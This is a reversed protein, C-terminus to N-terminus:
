MPSIELSKIQYNEDVVFNLILRDIEKSYPPTHIIVERRYVNKEKSWNYKPGGYSLIKFLFNYTSDFHVSYYQDPNNKGNKASFVWDDNHMIDIFALGRQVEVEGFSNKQSEYPHAALFNFFLKVKTTEAIREQEKLKQEEEKLKKELTKERVLRQAKQTYNSKPYFAKLKEFEEFIDSSLGWKIKLFLAQAITTENENSNIIEDLLKKADGNKGREFLSQAYRLQKHSISEYDTKIKGIVFVQYYGNEDYGLDEIKLDPLIFGESKSEILDEFLQYNRISSFSKIKIGAKELAKRKADILAENYDQERNTRIGDDIGRISFDITNQAHGSFHILLLLLFLKGFLGNM